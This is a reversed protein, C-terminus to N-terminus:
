SPLLLPGLSSWSLFVTLPLALVPGSHFPLLETSTPALSKTNGSTGLFHGSAMYPGTVM